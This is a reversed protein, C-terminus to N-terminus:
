TNAHLQASLLSTDLGARKLSTQAMQQQETREVVQLDKYLREGVRPSSGLAPLPSDSTEAGLELGVLLLWEIRAM